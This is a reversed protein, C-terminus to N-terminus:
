KFYYFKIVTNQISSDITFFLFLVSFIMSMGDVCLNDDNNEFWLM